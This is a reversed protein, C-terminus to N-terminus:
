KNNGEKNENKQELAYKKIQEDKYKQKSPFIKFEKFLSMEDELHTNIISDLEEHKHTLLSIAKSVLGSYDNESIYNEKKLCNVFDIYLALSLADDEEMDLYGLLDDINIQGSTFYNYIFEKNVQTLGEKDFVDGILIDALAQTNEADMLDKNYYPLSDDYCLAYLYLLFRCDPDNYDLKAGKEEILNILKKRYIDMSIEDKGSRSFYRNYSKYDRSSHIVIINDEFLNNYVLYEGDYIQSALLLRDFDGLGFQSRYYDTILNGVQAQYKSKLNNKEEEDTSEIYQMLIDLISEIEKNEVGYIDALTKVFGKDGEIFITSIGNDNLPLALEGFLVAVDNEVGKTYSDLSLTVCRNVTSKAGFIIYELASQYNTENLGTFDYECLRKEIEKSKKELAEPDAVTFVNYEFSSKKQLEILDKFLVEQLEESITKNQVILWGINDFYIAEKELGLYAEIKKLRYHDKLAEVQKSIPNRALSLTFVLAGMIFMDRKFKRKEKRIRENRAKIKNKINNNKNIQYAEELAQLMKENTIEYPRLSEDERTNDMIDYLYTLDSDEIEFNEDVAYFKKTASDRYICFRKGDFTGEAVYTYRM